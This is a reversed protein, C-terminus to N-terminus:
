RIFTSKGGMNPGTIIQLNSKNPVMRCDNSIISAPDQVEILPHRSELLTLTKEENMEPRAYQNSGSVQAFAALM